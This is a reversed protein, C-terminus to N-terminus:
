EQSFLWTEQLLVINNSDCLNYLDSLCTKMGHCNFSIVKM